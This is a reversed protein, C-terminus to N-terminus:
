ANHAVDLVSRMDQRTTRIETTLETERV